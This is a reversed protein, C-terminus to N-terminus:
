AAPGDARHRPEYRTFPRRLNARLDPWAAADVGDRVRDAVAAEDIAYDITAVSMRIVEHASPPEVSRRSSLGMSLASARDELFHSGNEDASVPNSQTVSAPIHRVPRAM